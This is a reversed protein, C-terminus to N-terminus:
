PFLLDVYAAEVLDSKEIGLKSMLDEATSVGFERPEDPGLVVELELFNGLGEVEDIHIRTRDVLYLNRKKRVVARVGLANALASKLPGPDEIPVCIYHSERPFAANEREYQILEGRGTDFLRLKLRGSNVNFFTDEQILCHVRGGSLEEAIRRQRECDSVRAKIEINRNPEMAGDSFREENQDVIGNLKCRCRVRPLAHGHRLPGTQQQRATTPIESL